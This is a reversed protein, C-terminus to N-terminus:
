GTAGLYFAKMPSVYALCVTKGNLDLVPFSTDSTASLYAKLEEPDFAAEAQGNEAKISTPIPYPRLDSPFSEEAIQMSTTAEDALHGDLGQNQNAKPAAHELVPKQMEPMGETGRQLRPAAGMPAWM